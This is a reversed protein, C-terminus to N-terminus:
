KGNKMYEVTKLIIEDTMPGGIQDKPVWPMAPAEDLEMQGFPVKEPNDPNFPQFSRGISASSNMVLNKVFDPHNAMIPKFAKIAPLMHDWRCSFVLEDHVPFMFRCDYQDIVKKIGLISRKIIAACSGQILANILQNVARKSIKKVVMDGFKRIAAASEEDMHASIERFYNKMMIQWEITAEYRVREHGDPLALRGTAAAESAKDQRWGVAIPFADQYAQVLTQVAEGGLGRREATTALYGSYWFEFNAGKGGANGRNFKYAAAPELPNGKEDKLEIGKPNLGKKLLMFDDRTFDPRGAVAALISAGATLHLDKYPLQGYAEAFAPDGSMEGILVLEIQSLDISMIGHRCDGEDTEQRVREWAEQSPISLGYKQNYELAKRERYPNMDNENDPTYFGRIYTSEGRKALQMTNPYSAAMRRTALQSSVNPYVKGTDPDTLLLYPELYLKIRQEIGALGNMAKLADKANGKAKELLKGRAEGDSQIKSKEIIPKMGFLDYYMVRAMMYHTVNFHDGPKSGEKKWNEFRARYKKWNKAYWGEVEMLKENPQDPFPLAAQCAAKLAEMQDVENQREDALKAEVAKPEIRCGKRWIDSYVAVMPNEQRCFATLAAPKIMGLLKHMLLLCYYADDGGYQACQEGTVESMDKANCDKLLQDFSGIEMKLLNKTLQKLGYGYAISKNFGNYSWASDTEKGVVKGLLTAQNSNLEYIGRDFGCFEKVVAPILHSFEWGHIKAFDNVDYEDPGFTSVALQMTDVYEGVDFNLSEAMMTEEFNANHIVWPVTKPKVDLVRRAKHWPIRNVADAHNLNFYWTNPREPAYLSFGAVKTRKHDFVLRKGSKYEIIGPHPRDFTEIDFGVHPAEVVEQEIRDVVQDFNRADVLVAKM